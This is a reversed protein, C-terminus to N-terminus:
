QTTEASEVQARLSGLGLRIQGSEIKSLPDIFRKILPNKSNVRYVRCLVYHEREAMAKAVESEPWDSTGDSGSTSKVEIWLKAGSEGVSRIDHNATPDDRSVWTVISEPCEHGAARVGPRRM